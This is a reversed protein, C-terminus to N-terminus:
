AGGNKTKLLRHLAEPDPVVSEPFYYYQNQATKLLFFGKRREVKTIHRWALFGALSTATVRVGEEDIQYERVERLEAASRWRKRVGLYIAVLLFCVIGPMILVGANKTYVEFVTGEDHGLANLTFPYVLYIGLLCGAIVILFRFQRLLVIRNFAFWDKYSPTYQFRIM